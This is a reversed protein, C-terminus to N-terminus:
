SNLLPIDWPKPEWDTTPIPEDSWQDYTMAFDIREHVEKAKDTAKILLNYPLVKVAWRYPPQTECFTWQWRSLPYEQGLELGLTYNYWGASFWYLLNGISRDIMDFNAATKPDDGIMEELNIADFRCQIDAIDPRVTVEKRYSEMAQRISKPMRSLMYKIRDNDKQTIVPRDGCEARWAKGEKTRMDIGEPKVIYQSKFLEPELVAAHEATGFRMADTEEREILGDQHDKFLQMSTLARKAQSSSIASNRHYDENSEDYIIPM